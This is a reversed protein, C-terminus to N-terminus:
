AAHRSGTRSRRTSGASASRWRPCRTWTPPSAPRSTWSVGRLRRSVSVENILHDMAKETAAIGHEHQITLVERTVAPTVFPNGDRDGGIWTGFSLPRATPSTEVGLTRLTDALDDLVQPAAEAYLDRLYYIANRAEDTPDPRDLRLEDTQWMLDLLEALRRNAPGEDSAGYLIANATETDLEDAIARLKSLISRRAAETPHATFVPRVALRRAANAIEEAPVGREAIMKAAQDLWGGQVARRRRLDRARHVQETINALHFYTSFARALKTGTTVDLGGLRQAAAPADSRVQARIEEVLDLLPRGEQRALTQGLLTGLRRIDARLAADPGDHDHQDTM